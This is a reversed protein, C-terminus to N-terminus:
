LDKFEVSLDDLDEIKSTVREADQIKELFAFQRVSLSFSSEAENTRGQGVLIDGAKELLLAIEPEREMQEDMMEQISGLLSRASSWREAGSAAALVGCLAAM